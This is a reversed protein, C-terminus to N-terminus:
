SRGWGAREKDLQAKLDRESRRAEKLQEGLRVGAETLGRIEEQAQSVAQQSDM